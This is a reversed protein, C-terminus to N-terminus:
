KKKELLRKIDALQAKMEALEKRLTANEDKLKKNEADKPDDGAKDGVKSIRLNVKGVDTCGVFIKIKKGPAAKPMTWDLKGKEAEPSNDLPIFGGPSDKFVFVCFGMEIGGVSEMEIRFRDGPEIPYEYLKVKYASYDLRGIQLMGPEKGTFEAQTQTGLKPPQAAAPAALFAAAVAALVSRTTM